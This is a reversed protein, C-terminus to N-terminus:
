TKHKGFDEVEEAAQDMRLGQGLMVVACTRLLIRLDLCVSFHEIYWLDLEIRESWKLENRGNVLAWGTLGPRICLRRRQQETYMAVQYPIAPRPGVLSMEGVLVNALQPLEDLGLRRLLRGVRTVRSDGREFGYGAGIREAGVVMTRFKWVRFLRGDKGAREQRFFVPGGGDLKIALAIAAFPVSLIALALTSAVLDTGRKVASGIETM